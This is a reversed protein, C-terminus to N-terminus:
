GLGKVFGAAVTGASPNCCLNQFAAMYKLFTPDLGGSRTSVFAALADTYEAYPPKTRDVMRRIEVWDVKKGDRMFNAALSHLKLM